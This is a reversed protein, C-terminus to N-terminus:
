SRHRARLRDAVSTPRFLAIPSRRLWECSSPAIAGRRVDDDRAADGRRRARPRGRFDAHAHKATHDFNRERYLQCARELEGASARRPSAKGLRRDTLGDAGDEAYRVCLRRFHRGWLMKTRRM